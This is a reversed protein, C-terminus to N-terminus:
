RVIFKKEITGIKTTGDYLEFVFKYGGLTNELDLKNPLEYINDTIKNLKTNTYSSLDVLSYDQNYASLVQKKYLSVRVTPNTFNGTKIVDFNIINDTIVNNFSVDFGYDITVNNTVTVPITIENSYTNAYKGDYSALAKIKFYYTGTELKSNDVSTTIELNGIDPIRVIGDNSPSYEKGNVKFTLNKLYEKNVINGNIDVLSINLGMIKDEYTTDNVQNGNIFDYVLNSTIDITNISDSTYIITDSYNSSINISASSEYINFPKLTTTLTKIVSDQNNLEMSIKIDEINTIDTNKFDLVITFNENIQNTYNDENFLNDSGVEKFLTLNYITDQKDVTYTYVKNQNNDILTIKTNLPLSTNSVIYKEKM